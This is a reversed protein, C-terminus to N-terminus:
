NTHTTTSQRKLNITQNPAFSKSINQVITLCGCLCLIHKSGLPHWMHNSDIVPPLHNARANWFLHGGNDSLTVSCAGHCCIKQGTAGLPGSPLHLVWTSFGSMSKSQPNHRNWADCAFLLIKSLKALFRQNEIRRNKCYKKRWIVNNWSAHFLSHFHCTNVVNVPSLCSGFQKGSLDSQWERCAAQHNSFASWYLLLNYVLCAMWPQVHQARSSLGLEHQKPTHPQLKGNATSM